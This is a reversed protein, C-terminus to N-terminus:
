HGLQRKMEGVVMAAAMGVNLSRAGPQMPILLRADATQHVQEPVGASERGLLLMDQAHFRFDTYLTAAKTTLLLLRGGQAARYATFDEWGAHRQWDALAIYDMGARRMRKDDLPFGCPEIVHLPLGVCACLRLLAGFNAAIDPQYLVVSPM